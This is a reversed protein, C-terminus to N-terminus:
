RTKIPTHVDLLKRYRAFDMDMYADEAEQGVGGAGEEREEEEKKAKKRKKVRQRVATQTFYRCRPVNCGGSVCM